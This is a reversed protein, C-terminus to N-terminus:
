SDALNVPYMEERRGVCRAPIGAWIEAEGTSQLLVANAGIVSGRRVRLVGQKGLIKAGSALIVDDEILVGQFQSQEMPRHIDARGVTVGPYIKVRSGIVTRPHIVVGFGGHELLVHEGIQVSIPIEVGLFKLIFYAPRGIVPRRRAYMLSTYLDM